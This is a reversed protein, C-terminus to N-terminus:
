AAVEVHAVGVAPAFQQFGFYAAVCVAAVVFEVM